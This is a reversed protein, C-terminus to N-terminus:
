EAVKERALSLTLDANHSGRSKTLVMLQSKPSGRWTFKWELLKGFLVTLLMELENSGSQICGWASFFSM